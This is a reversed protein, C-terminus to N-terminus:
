CRCCSRRTGCPLKDLHISWSQIAKRGALAVFATFALAQGRRDARHEDALRNGTQGIASVVALVIM